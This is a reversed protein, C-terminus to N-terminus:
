RELLVIIEDLSKNGVANDTTAIPKTFVIHLGVTNWLQTKLM